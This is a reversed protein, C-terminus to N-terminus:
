FKFDLGLSGVVGMFGVQYTDQLSGDAKLEVDADPSVRFGVNLNIEFWSAVRVGLKLQPTAIFMVGLAEYEVNSLTHKGYLLGAGLMVNPFFTVRGWYWQYGFGVEFTYTNVRDFGFFIDTSYKLMWGFTDRIEWALTINLALMEAVGVGDVTEGTFATQLDNYGDDGGRFLYYQFTPGISFHVQYMYNEMWTQEFDVDGWLIKGIAKDPAVEYIRMYALGEGWENTAEFELGPYLDMNSGASVVWGNPAQEVLRIKVKFFPHTRIAYELASEFSAETAFSLISGGGGGGFLMDNIADDTGSDSSGEASVEIPIEWNGSELNMIRVVATCEAHYTKRGERDTTDYTRLSQVEPFLVMFANLIENLENGSFSVGGFRGEGELSAREVRAEQLQSVFQDISETQKEQFGIIEFRRLTMFKNKVINDVQATIQRTESTRSVTGMLAISQREELGDQAFVTITGIFMSLLFVTLTFILVLQSQRKRM